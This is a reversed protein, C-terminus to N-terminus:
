QRLQERVTQLYVTSLERVIDANVSAVQNVWEIQSAAAAREQLTLLRNLVREYAELWTLGNKKSIEILRDSIEKVRAAAEETADQPTSAAM